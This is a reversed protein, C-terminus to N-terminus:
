LCSFQSAEEMCINGPIGRNNLVFTNFGQNCCSLPFRCTIRCRNKSCMTVLSIFVGVPEEEAVLLQTNTHKIDKIAM